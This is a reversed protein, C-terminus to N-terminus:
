ALRARVRKFGFVLLIAIGGIIAFFLYKPMWDWWLHYLRSFLFIAFFVSATNVVGDWQRAIGIWIAGAATALGLLEYIKEVSRTELALYSRGGWEALALVAIFFALSGALRYVAPFDTHRKHRAVLPTAFVALGMLAFLEPRDWFDLWRYGSRANFAAAGYSLLLGLGVVVVPRLGYRYALLMAFVGWVALARETSTINFIRGIVALDMIFCAVAVLAMLGAFYLTRERRAAFETGALAALPAIVVITVQAPTGLYGWYRAFFLLVAACIAIGGLTSVIRMGWSVRKQSISTDVDYQQALTTLRESTWQDFRTRQEPTLELVGQRALDDLGERLLRIRDADRQAETRSGASSNM